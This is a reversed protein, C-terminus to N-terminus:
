LSSHCRKGDLPLYTAAQEARKRGEMGTFGAAPWAEEWGQGSVSGHRVRAM